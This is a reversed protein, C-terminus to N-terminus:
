NFINVYVDINLGRIFFTLMAILCPSRLPKNLGCRDGFYFNLKAKKPFADPLFHSCITPGYSVARLLYEPDITQKAGKRKAAM